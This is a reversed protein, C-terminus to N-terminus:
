QLGTEINVSHRCVPPLQYANQTMPAFSLNSPTMPNTKKIDIDHAVREGRARGQPLAGHANRRNSYWIHRSSNPTANQLRRENKIDEVQKRKDRAKKM